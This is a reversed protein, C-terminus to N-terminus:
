LLGYNELRNVVVLAKRLDHLTVNKDSTVKTLKELQECIAMRRRKDTNLQWIAVVEAAIKESGNLSHFIEQLNGKNEQTSSADLVRKTAKRAFREETQVLGRKKRGFIRPFRAIEAKKDYKPKSNRDATTILQCEDSCGTGEFSRHIWNMKVLNEGVFTECM